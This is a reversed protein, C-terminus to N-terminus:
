KQMLDVRPEFSDRLPQRFEHLFSAHARWQLEARPLYSFVHRSVEELRAISKGRVPKLAFEAIGPRHSSFWPYTSTPMRFIEAHM